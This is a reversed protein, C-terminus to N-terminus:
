VKYTNAANIEDNQNEANRLNDTDNQFKKFAHVIYVVILIVFLLAFLVLILIKVTNNNVEPNVFNNQTNQVQSTQVPISRAKINTVDSSSTSKLMESSIDVREKM